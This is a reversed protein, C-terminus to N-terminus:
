LQLLLERVVRGSMTKHELLEAALQRVQDWRYPNEWLDEAVQVRWAFYHELQEASGVLQFALDAATSRDFGAGRHNWRGRAKREATPGALLTTISTELYDRTRSTLEIDPQLWKGTVPYHWVRGLYGEGPAITIARVARGVHFAAVAHGAEHYATAEIERMDKEESCGTWGPPPM